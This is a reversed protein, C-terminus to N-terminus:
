FDRVRLLEWLRRVAFAGGVGGAFVGGGAVPFHGADPEVLGEGNVMVAERGFDDLRNSFCIPRLVSPLLGAEPVSIRFSSPSSCTRVPLGM